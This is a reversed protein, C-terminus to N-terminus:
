YSCLPYIVLISVLGEEAPLQKVEFEWFKVDKDSSGTVMGLGDPKVQMSWVAGEHAKITELLTSAAIDFILLEGTKTGVM